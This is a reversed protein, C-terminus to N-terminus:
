WPGEALGGSESSHPRRETCSTHGNQIPPPPCFSQAQLTLGGSALGWLPSCTGLSGGEVVGGAARLAALALRVHSFIGLVNKLKQLSHAHPHPHTTTVAAAALM